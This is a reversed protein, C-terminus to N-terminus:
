VQSRASYDPLERSAKGENSSTFRDKMLLIPSESFRYSLFALTLTMLIAFIATITNVDLHLYHALVGQHFYRAMVGMMLTIHSWAGTRTTHFITSSM